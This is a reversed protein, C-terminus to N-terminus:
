HGLVPNGDCLADNGSGRSISHYTTSSSKFNLGRM